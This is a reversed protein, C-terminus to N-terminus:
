EEGHRRGFFHPGPRLDCHVWTTTDLELRGDYIDPNVVLKKIVDQCSLGDVVFDTALGEIHASNKAGGIMKNYREPRLWSTVIVARNFHERVKDLERAQKIINEAQYASPVAFARVSNLWLAETWKFYKSGDILGNLNIGKDLFTRGRNLRSLM